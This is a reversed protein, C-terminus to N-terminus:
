ISSIEMICFLLSIPLHVNLVIFMDVTSISFPYNYYGETVCEFFNGSGPMFFMVRASCSLCIVWLNVSDKTWCIFVVHWLPFCKHLPFLFLCSKTQRCFPIDFCVTEVQLARYHCACTKAFSQTHSFFTFYFDVSHDCVYSISPWNISSTNFDGLDAWYFESQKVTKDSSSSQARKQKLKVQHTLSRTHTLACLAGSFSMLFDTEWLWEDRHIM